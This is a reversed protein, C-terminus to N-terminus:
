YFRDNRWNALTHLSRKAAYPGALITIADEATLLNGLAARDILDVLWLAGFGQVQLKAPMGPKETAQLIKEPSGLYVQKIVKPKGDVRAMERIYVIPHPLDARNGPAILQPKHRGIHLATSSCELGVM